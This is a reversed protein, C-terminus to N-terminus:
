PRFDLLLSRVQETLLFINIPKYNAYFINTEPHKWFDHIAKGDDDVLNYCYMNAIKIKIMKHCTIGYHSAANAEWDLGGTDFELWEESGALDVFFPEGKLIVLRKAEDSGMYNKTSDTLIKRAAKVTTKYIEVMRQWYNELSQDVIAQPAYFVVANGYDRKYITQDGVYAKYWTDGTTYWTGPVESGFHVLWEWQTEPKIHAYSEVLGTLRATKWEIYQQAAQAKQEDMRKTEANADDIAAQKDARQQEAYLQKAETTFMEALQETTTVIKGRLDIAQGANILVKIANMGYRWGPESNFMDFDELDDASLYTAGAAKMQDWLNRDIRQNIIFSGGNPAPRNLLMGKTDIAHPEVEVFVKVITSM